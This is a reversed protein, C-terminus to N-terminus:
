LMKEPKQKLLGRYRKGLVFDACYIHTRFGIEGNYFQLDCHNRMAAGMHSSAPLEHPQIQDSEETLLERWCQLARREDPEMGEDRWFYKNNIRAM